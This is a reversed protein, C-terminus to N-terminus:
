DKHVFNFYLYMSIALLLANSLIDMTAQGTSSAGYGLARAKASAVLDYARDRYSEPTLNAM